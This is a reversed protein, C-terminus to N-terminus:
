RKDSHKRTRLATRVHRRAGAGTFANRFSTGAIMWALWAGIGTLIWMTVPVDELYVFPRSLMVAIIIAPSLLLAGLVLGRFASLFPDPGWYPRSEELFRAPLCHFEGFAARSVQRDAEDRCSLAALCFGEMYTPNAARALLTQDDPLQAKEALAELLVVPAPPPQRIGLPDGLFAADQMPDDRRALFREFAGVSAPSLITKTLAFWHRQGQADFAIFGRRDFEVHKPASRAFFSCPRDLREARKELPLGWFRTRIPAITMRAFANASRWRDSQIFDWATRAVVLGPLVDAITARGPGHSLHPFQDLPIDTMPLYLLGKPALVMDGMTFCNRVPDASVMSLVALYPETECMNHFM